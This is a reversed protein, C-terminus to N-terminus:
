QAIGESGDPEVAPGPSTTKLLYSLTMLGQDLRQNEVVVGEPVQLDVPAFNWIGGIGSRVLLDAVAQASEAPVTLCASVIHNSRVVAILESVHRVVVGAAESGVVLRDSDFVARLAFGAHAWIGSHVLARGLNGYGVLAMGKEHLLDLASYLLNELDAVDYGARPKGVVHLRTLDQRVRSATVGVVTALEESTVTHRGQAKAEALVMLYNELRFVTAKQM